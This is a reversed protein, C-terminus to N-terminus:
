VSKNFNLLLKLIKWTFLLLFCNLNQQQQEQQKTPTQKSAQKRPKITKPPTTQKTLVFLTYSVEVCYFKM